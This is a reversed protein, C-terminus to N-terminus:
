ACAGIHAQSRVLGHESQGMHIINIIIIRINNNNKNNKNCQQDILDRSRHTKIITHIYTHTRCRQCANQTGGGPGYQSETIIREREREARNLRRDTRQRM